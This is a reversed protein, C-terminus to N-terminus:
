HKIREALKELQRAATDLNGMPGAHETEDLRWNDLTEM